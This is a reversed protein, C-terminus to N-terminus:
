ERKAKAEAAQPEGADDGGLSGPERGENSEQGDEAGDQPESDVQLYQEVLFSQLIVNSGGAIYTCTEETLVPRQDQPTFVNTKVSSQPARLYFLCSLSNSHSLLELNVGDAALALYKGTGIHKLKV